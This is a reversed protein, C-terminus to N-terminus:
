SRPPYQFSQRFADWWVVLRTAFIEPISLKPLVIDSLDRLLPHREAFKQYRAKLDRLGEEAKSTRQVFREELARSAKGMGDIIEDWREEVAREDYEKLNRDRVPHYNLLPRSPALPLPLAKLQEMERAELEREAATTRRCQEETLEILRQYNMHL